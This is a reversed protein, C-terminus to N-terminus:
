KIVILDLESGFINKFKRVKKVNWSNIERNFANAGDFMNQMSTVM